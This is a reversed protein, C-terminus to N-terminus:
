FHLNYSNDWGNYVLTCQSLIDRGILVKYPQQALKAELSQAYIVVNETVPLIVGIDYLAQLDEGGATYVKKIDRPILHLANAISKDICTCSAGIDILGIAKLSPIKEGKLKLLECKPKPPHIIVDIVPGKNQLNSSKHHLHPM